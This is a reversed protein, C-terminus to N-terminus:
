IYIRTRAARFWTSTAPTRPEDGFGARNRAAQEGIVLRRRSVSTITFSKINASQAVSSRPSDRDRRVHLLEPTRRPNGIASTLNLVVGTRAACRAVLFTRQGSRPVCARVAPAAHRETRSSDSIQKKLRFAFRRRRHLHRRRGARALVSGTASAASMQDTTPSGYVTHGAFVRRCRGPALGRVTTV